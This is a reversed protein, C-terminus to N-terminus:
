VSKYLAPKGYKFYDPASFLKKYFRRSSKNLVVGLIYANIANLQTQAKRIDKITTSGMKAVLIAADTRDSIVLADTNCELAPTDIIVYDYESGAVQMFTGLRDSCLLSVPDGLYKGSDLFYMNEINTKCIAEGLEVAGNLYNSIGYATSHYSMKGAKGKKRLDLNVLLIRKGAGSLAIALSASFSTKGEGPNCSTVTLTKFSKNKELMYLKSILMSYAHQLINNDQAAGTFVKTQM